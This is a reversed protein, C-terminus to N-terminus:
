SREQLYCAAAVAEFIKLYITNKQTKRYEYTLEPYRQLIHAVVSVKSGKLLPVYHDKLEGLTFYHAKLGMSEILVNLSGILQMYGKSIPLRDPVKIGVSSICNEVILREIGRIIRRLKKDSWEEHYAKVRWDILEDGQMIVIGMSRTGISLGLVNAM